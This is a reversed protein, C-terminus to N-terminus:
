HMWSNAVFSRLSSLLSRVLEKREKAALINRRNATSGFPLIKGFFPLEGEALAM